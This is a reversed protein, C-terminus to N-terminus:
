PLPTMRVRTEEVVSFHGAWDARSEIVALATTAIYDPSSPAVRFLIIGCSAPLGLRFALYGFDKDFTVLVRQEAVARAIVSQDDVGPSDTRIWAVEHGHRRLLEVAVGPFNEDALLRM